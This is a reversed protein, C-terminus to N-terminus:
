GAGGAGGTDENPAGGAGGITAKASANGPKGSVLARSSILSCQENTEASRTIIPSAEGKRLEITTSGRSERCLEQCRIKEFLEVRLDYSGLANGLRTNFDGDGPDDATLFSVEHARPELELEKRCPWDGAESYGLSSGNMQTVRVCGVTNALQTLSVSSWNFRLLGRDVEELCINPLGDCKPAGGDEAVCIQDCKGPASPVGSKTAIPVSACAGGVALAGAVAAFAAFVSSSSRRQKM